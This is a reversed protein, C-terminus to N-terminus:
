SGNIVEKYVNLTKKASIKWSYKNKVLNYGRDGMDELKPNNYARIIADKLEQVDAPDVLYGNKGNVVFNDNDGVKTVIVPLKAAWAELITLPLGESLSPLCFIHSKKYEKILKEGKIKGDSIEVLDIIHKNSNISSLAKKLFRLGKIEDDRGVFIITFRKRKKQNVKDFNRTNVGNPIVSIKENNNKYKLFHKTVSIQYDYKIKTLLIKELYYKWFSYKITKKRNKLERLDLLNCGHVTYVVPIKLMLSLIKAPIGPIYAHAHLLDFKKESNDKIVKHIVQFAWRARQLINSDNSHYITFECESSLLQTIEKVHVQGGGYFPFWADILMTVRIKRRKKKNKM